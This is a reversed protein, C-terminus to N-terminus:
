RPGHAGPFRMKSRAQLSAAWDIPEGPYIVGARLGGTTPPLISVATAGAALGVLDVGARALQNRLFEGFMDHGVRANLQVTHGMKALLCAPCGANGALFTDPGEGIIQINGTSEADKEPVNSGTNQVILDVACNGALHVPPLCETM